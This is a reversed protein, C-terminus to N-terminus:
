SVQALSSVWTDELVEQKNSTFLIYLTFNLLHLVCHFINVVILPRLFLFRFTM